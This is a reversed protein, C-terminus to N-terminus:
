KKSSKKSTKSLMDYQRALNAKANNYTSLDMDYNAALDRLSSLAENYATSAKTGNNVTSSMEDGVLQFLTSFDNGSAGSKGGSSYRASALQSAANNLANTYATETEFIANAKNSSLSNAIDALTTNYTNLNTQQSNSLANAANRLATDYVNQAETNSSNYRLLADGLAADLVNQAEAQKTANDEEEQALARSLADRASQNEKALESVQAGQNLLNQMQALQQLGSGGLGRAANAIRTQRNAAERAAELEAQGTLYSQRQNEVDRANQEQFRKLSTLLNNRTTEYSTNANKTATDYVGQAISRASNYADEANARSLNYADQALVNALNYTNEATGRSTNAIDEYMKLLESIDTKYVSPASYGSYSGSGGSSNGSSNSTNNSYGTDVGHIVGPLAQDAYSTKPNATLGTALKSVAPSATDKYFSPFITVQTRKGVNDRKYIAM